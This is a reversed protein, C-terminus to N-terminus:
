YALRIFTLMAGNKNWLLQHEKRILESHLWHLSTSKKKKPLQGVQSDPQHEFHLPAGATALTADPAEPAEAAEAAEPAEAAEAAEAALTAM